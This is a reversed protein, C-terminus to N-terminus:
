PDRADPRKALRAFGRAAPSAVEVTSMREGIHIAGVQDSSIGGRRCVLALLRRPDAGHRGGWTVRFPEFSGTRPGAARPEPRPRRPAPTPPAIPTVSLPEAPGTHNARGLLATVLTTPDVERLLVEALARLRPDPAGAPPAALEARLRADAERLV